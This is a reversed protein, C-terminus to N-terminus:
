SSVMGPTDFFRPMILAVQALSKTKIIKQRFNVTAKMISSVDSSSQNKSIFELQCMADDKDLSEDICFNQFYFFKFM